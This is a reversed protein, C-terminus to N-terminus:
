KKYVPTWWDIYKPNDGKIMAFSLEMLKRTVERNQGTGILRYDIENVPVLHASTGCMFCEDTLYLEGRDISREITEIDLENKAMTM